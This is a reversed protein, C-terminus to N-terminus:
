VEDLEAEDERVATVDKRPSELTQGSPQTIPQATRTAPGNSFSAFQGGIFSLNPIQKKLQNLKWLSRTIRLAQASSICDAMAATIFRLSSNSKTVFVLTTIQIFVVPVYYVFGADFFAQTVKMASKRRRFDSLSVANTVLLKWTCLVFVLVDFVAQVLYPLFTYSPTSIFSCGSHNPLNITKMGATVLSGAIPSVVLLGFTLFLVPKNDKFVAVIRAQLLSASSLICLTEAICDIYNALRCHEIRAMYFAIWSASSILTSVRSLIFLFSIINFRRCFIFEVDDIFFVVTDWLYGGIAFCLMLQLLYTAEIDAQTPLYLYGWPNRLEPSTIISM